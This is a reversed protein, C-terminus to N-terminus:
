NRLPKGTKLMHEIRAQTAPHRVLAQFEARELALLDDETVTDVLDAEGGTLIRALAGSVVVDHPTALGRASAM